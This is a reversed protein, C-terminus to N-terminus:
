AGALWDAIRAELAQVEPCLQRVRDYNSAITSGFAERGKTPSGLLGRREVYVEFYHEKSSPDDRVENWVWDSPLDRQAALAWVEVEQWAPVAFFAQGPKLGNRATQEVNRLEDARAPKGDRDAVFLFLDAQRFASVIRGVQKKRKEFGGTGPGDYISVDARPKGLRKLM